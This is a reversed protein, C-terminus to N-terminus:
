ATKTWYKLSWLYISCMWRGYSSDSRKNNLLQNLVFTLMTSVWFSRTCSIWKTAPSFHQTTYVSHENTARKKVMNQFMYFSYVEGYGANNIVMKIIDEWLILKRSMNNGFSHICRKNRRHMKYSQSVELTKNLSIMFKSTGRYTIERYTIKVTTRNNYNTKSNVIM